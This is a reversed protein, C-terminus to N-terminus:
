RLRMSTAYPGRQCRSASSLRGSMARHAKEFAAWEVRDPLAPITVIEGQELGILAAHVMPMSPALGSSAGTVFASGNTDTAGM